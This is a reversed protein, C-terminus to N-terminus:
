SGKRHIVELIKDIVAQKPLFKQILSGMNILNNLEEPKQFLSKDPRQIIESTIGEQFPSNEEFYLNIKPNINEVSSSSLSSEPSRQM